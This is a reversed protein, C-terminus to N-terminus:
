SDALDRLQAEVTWIQNPDMFNQSSFKSKFGRLNNQEKGRRKKSETRSLTWPELHLLARVRPAAAGSARRPGLAACAASHRCSCPVVVATYRRRVSARRAALWRRRCGPGLAPRAGAQLALPGTSACRGVFRWCAPQQLALPWASNKFNKIKKQNILFIHRIKKQCFHWGAALEDPPLYCM